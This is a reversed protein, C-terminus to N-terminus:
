IDKNSITQAADTQAERLRQCENVLTDIIDAAYEAVQRAQSEVETPELGLALTAVKAWPEQSYEENLQEKTLM